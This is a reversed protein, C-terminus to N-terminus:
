RYCVTHSTISPVGDEETFACEERFPDNLNNWGSESEDKFGKEFIETLSEEKEKQLQEQLGMKQRDEKSDKKENLLSIVSLSLSALLLLSVIFILISSNERTKNELDESNAM